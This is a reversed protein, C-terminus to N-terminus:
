TFLWKMVKRGLIVPEGINPCSSFVFHQSLHRIEGMKRGKDDSRARPQHQSGEWISTHTRATEEVGM